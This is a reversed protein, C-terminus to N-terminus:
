SDASLLVVVTHEFDDVLRLEQFEFRAGRGVCWVTGSHRARGSDAAWLRAFPESRAALEGVLNRFRDDGEHQDVSDRLLGVVTALTADERDSDGVPGPELFAFRALNAGPEFAASVARASRNAAVVTLHRDLAFAPIEGLRTVLTQAQGPDHPLREEGAIDV